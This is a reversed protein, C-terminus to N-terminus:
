YPSVRQVSTFDVNPESIEKDDIHVLRNNIIILIIKNPIIKINCTM